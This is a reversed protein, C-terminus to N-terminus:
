PSIASPPLRLDSTYQIVKDGFSDVEEITLAQAPSFLALLVARIQAPDGSARRVKM